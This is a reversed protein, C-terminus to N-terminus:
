RSYKEREQYLMSLENYSGETLPQARIERIRREASRRKLAKYIETFKEDDTLGKMQRCLEEGRQLM